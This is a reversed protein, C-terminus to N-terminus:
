RVISFLTSPATTSSISMSLVVGVAKDGSSRALSAFFGDIPRHRGPQRERHTLKLWGDGVALDAGPPIVYVRDPELETDTDVQTVPMVTERALSESLMRVHGPHLDQVLV